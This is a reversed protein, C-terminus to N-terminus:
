QVVAKVEAVTSARAAKDMEWWDESVKFVAFTGYVGPETLLKEREVQALAPHVFLAVLLMAGAVTRALKM